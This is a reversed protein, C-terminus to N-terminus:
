LKTIDQGHVLIAGADPPLLGILLKLLVSKGSGSGGIIVTIKGERIELNLGRLVHNDKFNKVLNTVIIDM